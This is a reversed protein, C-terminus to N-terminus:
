WDSVEIDAVNDTLEIQDTSNTTEDYDLEILDDQNQSQEDAMKIMPASSYDIAKKCFM